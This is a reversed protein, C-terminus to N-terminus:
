PDDEGFCVAGPMPVVPSHFEYSESFGTDMNEFRRLGPLDPLRWAPPRM